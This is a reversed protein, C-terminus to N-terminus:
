GATWSHALAVISANEPVNELFCRRREPDVIRAAFREVIARAELVQTRAGALDGAAHLAEAHALLVTMMADDFLPIGRHRVGMATRSAELAEAPRGAALLARALCALGYAHLEPAVEAAVEIVARAEGIAGETDGRLRLIESLFTRATLAERRAGAAEAEIIAHSELELGEDLLGLRACALGLTHRAANTIYLAGLQEARVVVWRLLTEAERYRGLLILEYALIARHNLGALVEGAQDFLEVSRGSHELAADLDGDYWAFVARTEAARAADSAPVRREWRALGDLLRRALDHHGCRLLFWSSLASTRVHAGIADETPTLGLLLEGLAVREAITKESTSGVFTGSARYWMPSGVPLLAMAEAAVRGSEDIRASWQLAKARLTLLVGRHVGTAGLALARDARALAAAMDSSALANETARAYWEIASGADGGRDFHEALTLPDPEGMRELWAGTLGHALARDGDPLTAYAAERVIEHAFAYEEEGPFRPEPRRVIMERRCLDDLALPVLDSPADRLLACLGGSWFVAGLVSAARLVRRSEPRLAELRDQVMAVVTPPLTDGKGAAVARILEELYFANGSSREVIAELSVAPTREDLVAQALTLCAKRSLEGLRLESLGREAWLKPFQTRIQPRALALVFLPRDRLASLLQDIWKITTLDGWHLDELVLILPRIACESAVLEQWARRMQDGRLREDRRAADLQLHDAAAFPTGCLEGLFAAVRPAEAAPVRAAVQEQLRTRRSALAEGDHLGLARRVVQGIMAMPSGAAIADGQALWVTADRDALRRLLERRLRSKGAGAPASVLAARAAGEAVCDEFLERLTNIMGERGVFPTPKGLLTREGVADERATLLTLGAASSVIEFRADLLGATTEDVHIGPTADGRLASAARDIAEGIPVDGRPGRGTDVVLHGTVLAMPAQPLVRRLGLACRAARAARDTAAGKGGLTVLLSGDALADLRGDHAEACHACEVALTTNESPALTAALPGTTIMVASIMRQELEGIAVDAAAPSALPSPSTDPVSLDLHALEDAVKGADAPRDDPDKALMQRVLRDLAPPVDPRLDGLLPAPALLVKALVAAPHNGSFAHRGTVCEFLVCGLAFVDARADIEREGRAQEPAMYGVTGLTTGSTTLIAAARDRALGLDLLMARTPEGGVLMINQPKVDRHVVGAHHLAALGDAIRTLMRVADPLPMPGAALRQAVTEGGLWEMALWPQEGDAGHAVYKVIAPHAIQALIKAERKFRLEANHGPSQMLKVAVRCGTMTDQAAFVRGM